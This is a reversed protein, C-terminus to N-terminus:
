LIDFTSLLANHLLARLFEIDHGLETQRENFFFSLFIRLSFVHNFMILSSGVTGELTAGNEVCNLNINM